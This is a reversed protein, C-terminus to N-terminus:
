PLYICSGDEVTNGINYNEAPGVYGAPRGPFNPDTGDDTCGLM